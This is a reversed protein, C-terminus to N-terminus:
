IHIYLLLRTCYNGTLVSLFFFINFTVFLFIISFLFFFWIFDDRRTWNEAFEILPSVTKAHRDISFGLANECYM